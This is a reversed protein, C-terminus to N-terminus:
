GSTIENSLLLWGNQGSCGRASELFRTIAASQARAPWLISRVPSTTAAQCGRHHVDSRSLRARAGRCTHPPYIRAAHLSLFPDIAFRVDGLRVLFGAQGLRTLEVEPMM